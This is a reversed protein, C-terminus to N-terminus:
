ATAARGPAARGRGRGARGAHRAVCAALARCVRDVDAEVMTPGFPLALCSDGLAEAAPFDGRRFGFRAAYFPQLHIPTFYARTPIGRAALDAMVHARGISRHLRVVYVFWSMRTTTVAIKPLEVGAVDTLRECYWAAVRDRMALLEGLRSLQALGLAASLENLRYNYGLREHELWAGMAGRGQNRLSRLRHAWEERDTLIVGGEATTMQKNPYFAFVGADGLVGARRGRYEAGVAECADEIVSLGHEQAVRTLARMDAPQGFAHVPLLAKLASRARPGDAIRPLWKRAPAGGAQLDRAADRVLNPDINGTAPNVDVFIPVAREYLLCNASAVFSFPTTIVLDGAGIGAAVVALHLGATGSSVGVAHSAGTYRAIQREFADLRPGISLCGSRLADVVAAVEVETISPASM